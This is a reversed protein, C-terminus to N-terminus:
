ESRTCRLCYSVDMLKLVSSRIDDDTVVEEASQEGVKM